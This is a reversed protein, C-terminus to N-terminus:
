DDYADNDQKHGLEHWLLAQLTRFTRSCYDCVYRGDEDRDRKNGKVVGILRDKQLIFVGKQDFRVAKVLFAHKGNVVIIGRPVAKILQKDVYVKESGLNKGHKFSDVGQVNGLSCCAFIAAFICKSISMFEVGDYIKFGDIGRAISTEGFFILDAIRLPRSPNSLFDFFHFIFKVSKRRLEGFSWFKSKLPWYVSKKPAVCLLV